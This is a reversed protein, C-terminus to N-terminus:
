VRISNYLELLVDLTDADGIAVVKHNSVVTYQQTSPTFMFHKVCGREGARCASGFIVPSDLMEACHERTLEPARM